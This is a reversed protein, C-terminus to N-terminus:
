IMDDRAFPLRLTRSLGDSLAFLVQSQNNQYGWIILINPHKLECMVM